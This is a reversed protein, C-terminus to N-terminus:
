ICEGVLPKVHEFGDIVTGSGSGQMASTPGLYYPRAASVVGAVYRNKPGDGIRAVEECVAQNLCILILALIMVSIKIGQM